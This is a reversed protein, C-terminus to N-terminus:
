RSRNKNRAARQAKRKTKKAQGAARQKGAVDRRDAADRRSAPAVPRGMPLRLNNERMHEAWAALGAQSSMDFGAARGSMMFAKAPGFNSSDTLLRALRQSADGDLVALRRGARDGPYERELFALLARLGAIIAPAAEPEVSVKRPFVEFVLERVEAPSLSEVTTGFYHAAYDVLMAGWHAEPEAQAEPSAEFRGLIEAAYTEVRDEDLEGDGDLLPSASPQGPHPASIALEVEGDSTAIRKHLVLKPGGDFAEGLESSYERVIEALSVAIAEVRLTESRTPGRGVLEHDVVTIVPHAAASAVEWRHAAIEDLLGRGVETRRAYTLALHCPFMPPERREIADSADGFQHFDNVSAFLAFGHVKGAQGIVSIAADRLGLSESTIAILHNDSPIVDWPRTRYLRAAARFMAATREATVDGRVYNLDPEQDESAFHAFLSDIARDLEPTPACVVEVGDISARHLAEALEPAAVRVRHPMIPSGAKPDRATDRLNAGAAALADQPHIVSTGLIMETAVDMWILLSPRYREGADAIYSPLTVIGGVWEPRHDTELHPDSATPM